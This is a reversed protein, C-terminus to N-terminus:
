WGPVIPAHENEEDRAVARSGGQYAQHVYGQRKAIKALIMFRSARHDHDQKTSRNQQKFKVLMQMM